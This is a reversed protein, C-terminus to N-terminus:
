EALAPPAARAACWRATCHIRPSTAGPELELKVLSGARLPTTSRIAARGAVVSVLTGRCQQEPLLVARQRQEGADVSLRAIVRTLVCHRPPRQM